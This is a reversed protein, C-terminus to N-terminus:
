RIKSLRVAVGIAAEMYCLLRVRALAVALNFLTLADTCCGKCIHHFTLFFSLIEVRDYDVFLFNQWVFARNDVILKSRGKFYVFTLIHARLM